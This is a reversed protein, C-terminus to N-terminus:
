RPHPIRHGSRADSRYRILRSTVSLRSVRSTRSQRLACCNKGVAERIMDMLPRSRNTTRSEIGHQPLNDVAWKEIAVYGLIIASRPDMQGLSDRLTPTEVTARATAFIEATAVPVRFTVYCM